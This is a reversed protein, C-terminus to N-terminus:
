GWESDTPDVTRFKIATRPEAMMDAVADRWVPYHASAKHAAVAAEDRYIEVLLFRNPDDLQRLVDFRVVGPEMRSQRANERTAAEFADASGPKVHVTVHVHIYSM